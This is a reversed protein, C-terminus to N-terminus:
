YARWSLRGRRGDVQGASTVVGETRGRVIPKLLFCNDHLDRWRFCVLLLRLLAGLRRLSAERRQAIVDVALLDSRDLSTRNIVLILVTLM